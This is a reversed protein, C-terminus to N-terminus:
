IDVERKKLKTYWVLPRQTAQTGVRKYMQANPWCQLKYDCYSCVTHMVRNGTSVVDGKRPGYQVRFTEEKDKFEKKLPADKVIQKANVKAKSLQEDSDDKQYDPAECVAWEGSAKDVVIWGGFDMGKAKSYLYGQMLYGFTDDEKVKNYGGFEGGFKKSFAYPSASKIDWVKGDIVVDLTGELNCVGLDLNVREQESEVNVGSSKLVVMAIAEVIDGFLFRMISNYQIEKPSENKDHWQQCMPRGLGSMRLSYKGRGRSLQKVLAEGCHTKFEEILEPDLDIGEKIARDLLGQVKM